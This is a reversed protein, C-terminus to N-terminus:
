EDGEWCDPCFDGDVLHHPLVSRECVICNAM